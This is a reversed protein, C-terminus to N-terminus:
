AGAGLSCRLLTLLARIGRDICAALASPAGGDVQTSGPPRLVNEVARRTISIALPLTMIVLLLWFSAMARVVWFVWLLVIGVSLAM